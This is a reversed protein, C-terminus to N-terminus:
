FQKQDSVKFLSFSLFNKKNFLMKSWTMWTVVSKSVQESGKGWDQNPIKPSKQFGNKQSRYFRTSNRSFSLSLRDDEQILGHTAERHHHNRWENIADDDGDESLPTEYKILVKQFQIPLKDKNRGVNRGKLNLEWVRFHWSFECINKKIKRSVETKEKRFFIAKGRM